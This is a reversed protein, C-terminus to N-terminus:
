PSAPTTPVESTANLESANSMNTGNGIYNTEELQDLWPPTYKFGTTNHRVDKGLCCPMSGFMASFQELILCRCSEFNGPIWPPAPGHPTIITTNFVASEPRWRYRYGSCTTPPKPSALSWRLFPFYTSNMTGDTATSNGFDPPLVLFDSRSYTYTKSEPSGPEPMKGPGKGFLLNSSNGGLDVGIAALGDKGNAVAHIRNMDGCVSACVSSCAPAGTLAETDRFTPTLGWGTAANCGQRLFYGDPCVATTYGGGELVRTTTAFSSVASSAVPPIATAATATGNPQDEEVAVDVDSTAGSRSRSGSKRRFTSHGQQASSTSSQILSAKKKLFPPADATRIRQAHSDKVTGGGPLPELGLTTQLTPRRDAYALHVVACAWFSGRPHM